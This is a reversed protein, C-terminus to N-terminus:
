GRGDAEILLSEIVIENAPPFRFNKLDAVDAWRVQQCEIPRPEGSLYDCLYFNLWIVKQNYSKRIEMLKHRVRIDIGLEEKTERRVCDTFSEGPNKKGGPFEWFSGFTDDANRQAILVERGRRIVAVGCPIVPTKRRKEQTPRPEQKM